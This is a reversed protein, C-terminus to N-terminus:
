GNLNPVQNNHESPLFGIEVGHIMELYYILLELQRVLKKQEQM